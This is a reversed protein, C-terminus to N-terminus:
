FKRGSQGPLYTDPCSPKDLDAQAILLEVERGREDTRGCHWLVSKANVDAMLLVSRDRYKRLITRSKETHREIPDAFQYYQNVLVLECGGSIIEVCM